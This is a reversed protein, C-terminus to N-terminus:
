SGSREAPIPELLFIATSGWSNLCDQIRFDVVQYRQNFWGLM